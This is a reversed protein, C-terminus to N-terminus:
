VRGAIEDMTDVLCQNEAQSGATIRLYDGMYRVAISKKLLEEYFEKARKTKIFVFNTKPKYIREFVNAKENLFVIKEYLNDRSLIIQKIGDRIEDQHSLVVEGIAQTISNVNYPSKASRLAQTLKHNCVAFGLRIGAMGLAKSCTKLVILNDYKEVESLLSQDDFDMYAEDLVVLADTSHIIRKVDKAELGQSTPNCPNSFIVLGVDNNSRIYEIAQDVDIQLEENKPLTTILNEFISGYFAYMSFDPSFTLIKSGKQLFSGIIVSILEDSGNGATVLESNVGYFDGFKKCLEKAYPDPYRNFKQQKIKNHIDEMMKPSPPLFSENADLRIEYEGTIPDYPTLDKLKDALTYSM